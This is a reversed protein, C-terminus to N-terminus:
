SANRKLKKYIRFAHVTPYLLIKKNFIFSLSLNLPDKLSLTSQYVKLPYADIARFDSLMQNLESPKLNSRIFRTIAIFVYRQQNVHIRQLAEINRVGEKILDQRLQHLQEIAFCLDNLHIKLHQDSKNRTISINSVRYRHVDYPIHLIRKAKSILTPTFYADQVFKKDYFGMNHTLYFDKKIMYWWVEPKYNYSALYDIGNLLNQASIDVESTKSNLCFNDLVNQSLFSLIDPNFHELVKILTGLTNKAIYDDADLFYIYDGQSCSVGTNRAGGLGKNEQSVLQVNPYRRAIPKIKDETRDTSGDNIVIVEYASQDIDQELCSQICLEIYDEVNYAPVIISLKM